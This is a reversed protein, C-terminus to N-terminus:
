SGRTSSVQAQRHGAHSVLLGGSGWEPVIATEGSKQFPSRRTGLCDPTFNVRNLGELSSGSGPAWPLLSVAIDGFIEEWWVLFVTVDLGGCPWPLHSCGLPHITALGCLHHCGQALPAVESKLIGQCILTNRLYLFFPTVLHKLVSSKPGIPTNLIICAAKKKGELITQCTTTSM